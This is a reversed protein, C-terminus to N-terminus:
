SIHSTTLASFIYRFIKPGRSRGRWWTWWCSPWSTGRTRWWRRRLSLRVFSLHCQNVFSMPQCIVLKAPCIYFAALLARTRWRERSKLDFTVSTSPIQHSGVVSVNSSSWDDHCSIDLDWSQASPTFINLKFRMFTTRQSKFGLLLRPLWDSPLIDFWIHIQASLLYRSWIPPFVKTLFYSSAEFSSFILDSASVLNQDFPINIPAWTESSILDFKWLSHLFHRSLKSQFKPWIKLLSVVPDFPITPAM